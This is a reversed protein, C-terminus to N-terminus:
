YVQKWTNADTKVFINSVPDWTTLGTKIYVTNAIEWSNIATKVMAGQSSSFAVPANGGWQSRNNTYDNATAVNSNYITYTGNNKIWSSVQSVNATPNEQLYLSIIGTIQPTAMSTGSINVQKFNSNWFYPQGSYSNVNSVTSMINSGAAFVDVGPGAMSFTSKQDFNSNYVSSDMSGVIMADLSYPSSGRQYYFQNGFGIISQSTTFYNNYDLGGPVDVKMNDNGAAICVNMGNDILTQIEDDIYSLRIPVRSGYFTFGYATSSWGPSIMPLGRYIGGTITYFGVIGVGYGWSMNVVTPRGTYYPSAPNMKRNHWGVLVDFMQTDTLGIGPDAAGELGDLKIVFIQANKGWGYTLGAAIGAVHTGHGDYDTYFQAPMAGPVGSEAFWDIQQVRSTSNGSYYFDPHDAQIGSDTIVIDVGTGDTFYGYGTGAPLSTSTGYVNNIVSNRVLGWNVFSGSDLSTKQFNNRTQVIRNRVIEIDPHDRVPIEVGRVRPDLRLKDAEDDTMYYHCARPQLDRNDAIEVSRNPVVPSINGANEIESWFSDLDADRHLTVIYERM